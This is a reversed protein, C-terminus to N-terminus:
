ALEHLFVTPKSLLVLLPKQVSYYYYSSIQTHVTAYVAYDEYDFDTPETQPNNATQMWCTLQTFKHLPEAMIVADYVSGSTCNLNM